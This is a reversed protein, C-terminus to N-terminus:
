SAITLRRVGATSAKSASDRVEHFTSSTPVAVSRRLFSTFILPWSLGKVGSRLSAATQGGRSDRGRRWSLPGLNLTM